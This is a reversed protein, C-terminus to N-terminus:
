RSGRLAFLLHNGLPSDPALVMETILVAAASPNITGGCCRRPHRPAPAAAAAVDDASSRIVNSTLSSSFSRTERTDNQQSGEPGGGNLTPRRGHGGKDKQRHIWLMTSRQQMLFGGESVYKQAEFRTCILPWDHRWGGVAKKERWSIYFLSVNKLWRQRLPLSSNVM